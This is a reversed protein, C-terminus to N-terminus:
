LYHFYYRHVYINGSVSPKETIPSKSYHELWFAKIKWMQFIHIINGLAMFLYKFHVDGIRLCGLGLIAFVSEFEEYAEYQRM